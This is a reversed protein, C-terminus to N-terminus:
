FPTRDSRRVFWDGVFYAAVGLAAFMLPGILLSLNLESM